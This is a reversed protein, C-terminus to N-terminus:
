RKLDNMLEEEFITSHNKFSIEDGRWIKALRLASSIKSQINGHVEPSSINRNNGTSSQM